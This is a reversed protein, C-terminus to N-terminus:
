TKTCKPPQRRIPRTETDANIRQMLDHFEAAMPATLLNTPPNYFCVFLIPGHRQLRLYHLGAMARDLPSPAAAAACAMVLVPLALAIARIPAIMRM